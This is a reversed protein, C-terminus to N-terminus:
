NKENILLFLPRFISLLNEEMEDLLWLAIDVRGVVIAVRGQVREALHELRRRALLM